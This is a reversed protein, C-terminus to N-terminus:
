SNSFTVNHSAAFLNHIMLNFSEVYLLQLYQLGFYNYFLDIVCFELPYVYIFFQTPFKM